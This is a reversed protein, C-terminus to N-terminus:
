WISSFKWRLSMSLCEFVLSQYFANTFLPPVTVMDAAHRIMKALPWSVWNSPPGVDLFAVDLNGNCALVFVTSSFCIGDMFCSCRGEVKPKYHINNEGYMFFHFILLFLTIFLQSTSDFFHFNVIWSNHMLICLFSPWMLTEFWRCAINILYKLEWSNNHPHRQFPTQIMLYMLPSFGFVMVGRRLKWTCIFFCRTVLTSIFFWQEAVYFCPSPPLQKLSVM